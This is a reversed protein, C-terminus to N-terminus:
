LNQFYYGSVMLTNLERGCWPCYEIIDYGLMTYKPVVIEWPLLEKYKIWEPCNCFIMNRGGIFLYYLKSM